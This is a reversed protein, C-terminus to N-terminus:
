DRQPEVRRPDDVDLRVYESTGPTVTMLTIGDPYDFRHWAGRPVIALMGAKIAFSQRGEETVIHMTAAGDVVHVLEDGEPHREWAGKGASKSVFIAGDRYPMLRASSGEREARTTQPTRGSLTKLKALETKLDIITVLDREKM